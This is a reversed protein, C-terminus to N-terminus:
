RAGAVKQKEDFDHDIYVFRREGQEWALDRAATEAEIVERVQIPREVLRHKVRVQIAPEGAHDLEPYIEIDCAGALALRQRLLDTLSQRLTEPIANALSNDLTGM